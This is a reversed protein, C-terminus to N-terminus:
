DKHEMRERRKCCRGKDDNGNKQGQREPANGRDTLLQEVTNNCVIRMTDLTKPFKKSFFKKM